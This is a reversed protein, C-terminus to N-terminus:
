GRRKIFFNFAVGFVSVLFGSLCVVMWFVRKDFYFLAGYVVSIYAVIVVMLINKTTDGSEFMTKQMWYVPTVIFLVTLFIKSSGEVMSKADVADQGFSIFYLMVGFSMGMVIFGTSLGVESIPVLFYKMIRSKTAKKEDLGLLFYGITVFVFGTTMLYMFARVSFPEMLIEELGSLSAQKSHYVSMVFSIVVGYAAFVWFDNFLPRFPIPIFSKEDDYM